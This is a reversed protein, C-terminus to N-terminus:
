NLIANQLVFRHLSAGHRGASRSVWPSSGAATKSTFTMEWIRMSRRGSFGRLNDRVAELQDQILSLKLLFLIAM